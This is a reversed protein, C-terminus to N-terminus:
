CRPRLSPAMSESNEITVHTPILTFALRHQIAFEIRLVCGPHLACLFGRQGNLAVFGSLHRTELPGALISQRYKTSEM